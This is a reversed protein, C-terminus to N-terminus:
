FPPEDEPIADAMRAPEGAIAGTLSRQDGETALRVFVRNKRDDWGTVVEPLRDAMGDALPMVNKIRLYNTGNAANKPDDELEVLCWGSTNLEGLDTEETLTVGPTVALARSVLKSRMGLHQSCLENMEFMRPGSIKSLLLVGYTLKVSEGYNGPITEYTDPNDFDVLFAPYTFGARLGPEPKAGGGFLRRGEGRASYGTPAPLGVPTNREM